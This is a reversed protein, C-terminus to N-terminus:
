SLLAAGLAPAQQIQVRLTQLGALSPRAVDFRNFRIMLQGAHSLQLVHYIVASVM